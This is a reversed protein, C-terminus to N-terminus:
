RTVWRLPTGTNLVSFFPEVLAEAAVKFVPKLRPTEYDDMFSYENATVALLFPAQPRRSYSKANTHPAEKEFSEVAEASACLFVKWSMGPQLSPKLAAYKSRFPDASTLDTTSDQKTPLEEEWRITFKARAENFDNPM